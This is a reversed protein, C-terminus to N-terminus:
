QGGELADKGETLWDLTFRAFVIRGAGDTEYLCGITKDPLATLCSYGFGEKCLVRKVPWTKGEDYSLFVNGNERRTSQPGSFLIRSKGGNSSDTFRFISAMCSPDIQEPVDEVKSWTAGGDESVCTKRVANGAWRRANFRVSGDKLEVVQAENVTSAKGGK